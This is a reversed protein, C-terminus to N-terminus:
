STYGVDQWRVQEFLAPGYNALDARVGWTSPEVFLPVTAFLATVGADIRTATELRAQPDLEADAQDWLTGLSADSVGSLNQASDAPYFMARTAAIPFASAVWGFYTVDFDRSEVTLNQTFFDDAPVTVIEVDFGAPAEQQRVLQAINSSAPTEAPVVFRVHLREGDCVGVGDDGFTCGAATLIARADDASGTLVDALHDVYGAQGPVFLLSGLTSVPTGSGVVAQALVSRNLATAFARRVELNALPGATGNLTLQRIVSGDARQVVADDRASAAALVDPDSHVDVADIERNAFAQGLSTRSVTRFVVTDLRAVDGWWRPNRGLTIVQADADIRTVVFPGGSVFTTGDAAFPGAAWATAFHEPTDTVWSPYIATLAAPWDANPTAFRLVVQRDDTGREVASVDEWVATSQVAYDPDTGRFAAWTSAVDLYTIPTGDSWTAAPNITLEVVLPDNSTVALSTVYDPDAHASGDAAIQVFSPLYLGSLRQDDVTGSDPTNLVYTVPLADVALTLTGGDRVQDRDVSRWGTPSLPAASETGPGPAPAPGSSCAALVTTAALAVAVVLAATRLTGTAGLTRASRRSGTM